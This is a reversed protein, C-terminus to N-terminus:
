FQLQAGRGQGLTAPSGESSTEPQDVQGLSAQMAITHNNLKATPITCQCPTRKHVAGLQQESCSFSKHKQPPDVSCIM